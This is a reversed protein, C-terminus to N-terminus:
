SRGARGRKGSFTKSSKQFEARHVDRETLSAAFREAEEATEFIPIRQGCAAPAGSDDDWVLYSDFPDRVVKFRAIMATDARSQIKKAM